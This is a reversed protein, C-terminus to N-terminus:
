TPVLLGTENQYSTIGQASITSIQASSRTRGHRSGPRLYITYTATESQSAALIMLDKMVGRQIIIFLRVNMNWKRKELVCVCRILDLM